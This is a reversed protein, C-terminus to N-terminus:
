FLSAPDIEEDVVPKLSSIKTTPIEGPGIKPIHKRSDTQLETPETATQGTTPSLDNYVTEAKLSSLKTPQPQVDALVPLPVPNDTTYPAVDIVEGRTDGARPSGGEGEILRATGEITMSPSVGAKLAAMREALTILAEIRDDSLGDTPTTIELKQPMLKAVMSAFEMPKEFAARRLVAEGQEQWLGHLDEFFKNAVANRSGKPRGKSFTNGKEFPPHNPRQPVTSAKATTQKDGALRLPPIGHFVVKRSL